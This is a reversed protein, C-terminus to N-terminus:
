QRLRLLKATIETSAQSNKHKDPHALRILRKIDEQTLATLPSGLTARTLQSTRLNHQAIKLEQEAVAFRAELRRNLSKLDAITQHSRGLDAAIHQALEAQKALGIQRASDLSRQIEEPDSGGLWRLLSNRLKTKM